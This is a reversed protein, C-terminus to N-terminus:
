NNAAADIFDQNGLEAQGKVFKEIIEPAMSIPDSSNWITFIDKSNEGQYTLVVTGKIVIKSQVISIVDSTDFLCIAGSAGREGFWKDYLSHTASTTGTFTGEEKTYWTKFSGEGFAIEDSTQYLCYIDGSKLLYLERDTIVDAPIAVQKSHLFEFSLVLIAPVLIVAIIATIMHKRKIKKLFQVDKVNDFRSVGCSAMVKKYNSTCDLCEALHEEIEINTVESTLKEAFSPLLDKVVECKLDSKM